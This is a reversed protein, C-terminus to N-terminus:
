RSDLREIENDDLRRGDIILESPELKGKFIEPLEYATEKAELGNKVLEKSLQWDKVYMTKGGEMESSWLDLVDRLPTESRRFESFEREATYAVSVIM